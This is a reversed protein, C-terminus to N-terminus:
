KETYPEVLRVTLTYAADGIDSERKKTTLVGEVWIPDWLSKLTIPTESHIYVVQNPPPPPTHICAGFYPVLLFEKVGASANFDFPVPFGPLRVTKGDLESVVNFTGIQEMSDQSSGEAIMSGAAGLNALYADYMKALRDMEGPPMLEEWALVRPASAAGAETQVQTPQVPAAQAAAVEDPLLILVALAELGYSRLRRRNM